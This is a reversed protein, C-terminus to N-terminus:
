ILDTKTFVTLGAAFVGAALVLGTAAPLVPLVATKMIEPANAISYISIYELWKGDPVIRSLLDLFWFGMAIGAGAAMGAKKWIASIGFCITGIYVQVITYALMLLCIERTVSEDILFSCLATICFCGVNFVLLFSLLSAWKEMYFRIASVPHGLWFTMTRATRERHMLSFGTLGAFLGGCLGIVNGCEIAFYGEFTGFSLQDLGFASSFTGMSSFLASLSEQDRSLEPYLLICIGMLAGAAATWAAVGKWGTKWETRFINM